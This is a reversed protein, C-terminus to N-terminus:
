LRLAQTMTLAPRKVVESYAASWNYAEMFGFRGKVAKIKADIHELWLLTSLGNLREETKVLTVLAPMSAGVGCFINYIKLEGGQPRIVLVWANPISFSESGSSSLAGTSLDCYISCTFESKHFNDGCAALASRVRESQIEGMNKAVIKMDPLPVACAAFLALCQMLERKETKHEVIRMLLTM